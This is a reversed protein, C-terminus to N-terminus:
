VWKDEWIRDNTPMATQVIGAQDIAAIQSEFNQMYIQGEQASEGTAMTSLIRSVMYTLLPEIIAEPVDIEVEDPNVRRSMSIFPHSARYLVSLKENLPKSFQMTTSSPIYITREDKRNNLTYEYGCESVVEEINILNDKFPNADDHIYRGESSQGDALAATGKSSKLLYLINTSSTHLELQEMKLPIRIHVKALGLNLFSIMKPFDKEAIAGNNDTGVAFQSLEGYSLYQFFESLLM